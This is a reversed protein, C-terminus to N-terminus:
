EPSKSKDWKYAFTLNNSLYVVNTIQGYVDVNKDNEIGNGHQM